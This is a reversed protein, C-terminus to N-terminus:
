RRVAVHLSLSGHVIRLYWSLFGRGSGRGEEKGEVVMGELTM